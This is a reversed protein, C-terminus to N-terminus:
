QLQYRIGVGFGLGFHTDDQVQLHPIVHSYAEFSKEFGWEIGVPLRAGFDGDWHGYGGGSIYWNLSGKMEANLKEKRIQYDVAVGENGVFGSFKKVSGSVGLGRDFGFGLKVDQMSYENSVVVNSLMFMCVFLVASVKSVKM